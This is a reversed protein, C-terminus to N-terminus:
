RITLVQDAEDPVGPTVEAFSVTQLGGYRQVIVMGVTSEEEAKIASPLFSITPPVNVRLVTITFYSIASTNIGSLFKPLCM